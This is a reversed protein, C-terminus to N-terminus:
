DKDILLHYARYDAYNWSLWSRKEYDNIFRDIRSQLREEYNINKHYGRKSFNFKSSQTSDIQELESGQVDIYPLAKNSLALMYDLHLFSKDYHKFNYKAIIIDWNFCAM